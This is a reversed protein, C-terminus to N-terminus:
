SQLHRPPKGPYMFFGSFRSIGLLAMQLTTEAVVARMDGNWLVLGAKTADKSYPDIIFGTEPDRAGGFPGLKGLEAFTVILIYAGCFLQALKVAKFSMM